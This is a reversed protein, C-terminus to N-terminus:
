CSLFWDISTWVFTFRWTPNRERLRKTKMTMMSRCRSWWDFCRGVFLILEYAVNLPFAPFLRVVSAGVGGIELCWWFLLRENFVIKEVTLDQDIIRDQWINKERERENERHATRTKKSRRQEKVRNKRRERERQRNQRIFEKENRRNNTAVVARREKERTLHVTNNYKPQQQQKKEEEQRSVQWCAPSVSILVRAHQMLLVLGNQQKTIIVFFVFKISIRKGFCLSFVFLCGNSSETLLVYLYEYSNSSSKRSYADQWPITKKKLKIKEDKCFIQFCVLATLNLCFLFNTFFVNLFWSVISFRLDMNKNVVMAPFKRVQNVNRDDVVM